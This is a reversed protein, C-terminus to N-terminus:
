NTEHKGSTSEPAVNVMRDLLSAPFMPDIHFAMCADSMTFRYDIYEARRSTTMLSQRGRM